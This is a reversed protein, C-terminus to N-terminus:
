HEAAGSAVRREPGAFAKQVIRRDGRGKGGATLRAGALIEEVLAGFDLGAHAAIKPLLSTETMGPITNVELVVENGLDSVIMDVRTAGSCALAQHALLAQHCVGRYREPSLRAPM